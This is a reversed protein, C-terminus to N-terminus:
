CRPIKQLIDGARVEGRGANNVSGPSNMVCICGAPADDPDPCSGHDLFVFPCSSLCDNDRLKGILHVLCSKNFFDRVQYSFLLNLPHSKYPILRVPFTHPDRHPQFFILKRLHDDILKVLVRLHLVAEANNKKGNYVILGLLKRQFLNKLMENKVAPLNNDPPGPIVQFLSFRPGM